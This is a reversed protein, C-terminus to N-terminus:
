RRSRRCTTTAWRKATTSHERRQQSAGPVPFAHRPHHSLNRRGLPQLAKSQELLTTPNTAPSPAHTTHSAPAAGAQAEPHDIWDTGTGLPRPETLQDPNRTSRCPRAHGDARISNLPVVSPRKQPAPCVHRPESSASSPSWRCVRSRRSRPLSDSGARTMFRRRRSATWARLIRQVLCSDRGLAGVVSRNSM